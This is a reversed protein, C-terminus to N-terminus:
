KKDINLAGHMHKFIRHSPVFFYFNPIKFADLCPKSAKLIGFIQAHLKSNVYTYGTLLLKFADLCHLQFADLCPM